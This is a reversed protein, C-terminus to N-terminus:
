FHNLPDSEQALILSHLEPAAGTHPLPRFIRAHICEGSALKIKLFFNTGQFDRCKIYFDSTLYKLIDHESHANTYLYSANM